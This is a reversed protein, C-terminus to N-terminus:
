QHTCSIPTTLDYAVPWKYFYDDAGAGCDNVPSNIYVSHGGAPNIKALNSTNGGENYLYVDDLLIEHGCNQWGPFPYFSASSKVFEFNTQGACGLDTKNM